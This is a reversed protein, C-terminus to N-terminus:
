DEFTAEIARKAAEPSIYYGLFGDAPNPLAPYPTLMAGFGREHKFVRAEIRETPEDVYIEYSGFIAWKM